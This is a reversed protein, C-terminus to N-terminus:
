IILFYIIFQKSTNKKNGVVLLRTVRLKIRQDANKNNTFNIHYLTTYYVTYLNKSYIPEIEQM